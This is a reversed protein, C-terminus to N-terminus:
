LEFGTIQSMRIKGAWDQVDLDEVKTAFMFDVKLSKISPCSLKSFELKEIQDFESRCGEDKFTADLAQFVFSFNGYQGPRGFYCKPTATPWSWRPVLVSATGSCSSQLAGVTLDELSFVQLWIAPTKNLGAAEVAEDVSQWARSVGYGLFVAKTRLVYVWFPGADYVRLVIQEGRYLEKSTQTQRPAGFLTELAEQPTNEDLAAIQGRIRNVDLAPARQESPALDRDASAPQANEPSPPLSRLGEKCWQGSPYIVCVVRDDLGHGTNAKLYINTVTLLAAVVVVLGAILKSEPKFRPILVFLAAIAAILMALEFWLFRM